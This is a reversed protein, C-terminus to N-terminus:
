NDSVSFASRCKGVGGLWSRGARRAEAKVREASGAARPFWRGFHTVLSVWGEQRIQLRDLIPALHAPIAGQSDLRTQRGTWDVLELYTACSM